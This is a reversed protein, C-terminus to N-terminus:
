ITIFNGRRSSGSIPGPIVPTMNDYPTMDAGVDYTVRGFGQRVRGAM